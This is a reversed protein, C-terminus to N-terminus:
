DQKLCFLVGFFEFPLGDENNLISKQETKRKIGHKMM